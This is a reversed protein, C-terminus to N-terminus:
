ACWRELVVFDWLTKPFHRKIEFCRTATYLSHYERKTLQDTWNRICADEDIQMQRTQRMQMVGQVKRTYALTLTQVHGRSAMSFLGAIQRFSNESNQVKVRQRITALKSIHSRKTVQCYTDDFSESSQFWVRSLSSLHHMNDCLKHSHYWLYLGSDHISGEALVKFTKKKLRFKSM